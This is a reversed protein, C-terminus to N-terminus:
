KKWRRDDEKRVGEEEEVVRVEDKESWDEEEKGRKMWKGLKNM